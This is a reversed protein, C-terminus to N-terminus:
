QADGNATRSLFYRYCAAIGDHMSTRPAWGFSRALTSDILRQHVGSPKTTDFALEGDYGVVDAVLEYLERVSHDTGAGVNMIQPWDALEDVHSVIWGALDPAFSFERRATGDGWVEVAAASEQKARHTKLLASAILHARTHDFTDGPGYLNSPLIARYAAGTQKAAYGVASLGTLKSLGYSENAPELRGSFLASEHIPSPADAPYAAASAVYFYAPVEAAVVAELVSADIRINDHLYPLPRAIKDGIGGVFAATHIVLDPHRDAVTARTIEFDRLDLDRRSLVTLEDGPRHVAWARAISSALMGGGGTLM